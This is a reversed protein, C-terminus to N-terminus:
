DARPQTKLQCAVFLTAHRHKITEQWVATGLDHWQQDFEASDRPVEAFDHWATPLEAPQAPLFGFGVAVTALSGLLAFLLNRTM